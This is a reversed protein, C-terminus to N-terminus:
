AVARVFRLATLQRLLRTLEELEDITGARQSSELMLGAAQLLEAPTFYARERLMAKARDLALALDASLEDLRHSQFNDAQANM